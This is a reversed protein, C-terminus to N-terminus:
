LTEYIAAVNGLAINTEFIVDFKLFARESNRESIFKPQTCFYLLKLCKVMYFSIIKCYAYVLKFFKIYKKRMTIAWSIEWVNNVKFSQKIVWM